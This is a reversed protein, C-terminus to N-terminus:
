LGSSLAELHKIFHEKLIEKYTEPYKELNSRVIGGLEPDRLVSGFTCHLIQRGLKTFGKGPEVERWLELYERELELDSAKDVTPADALTASVHYTAKDNDYHDRSFAIIRRFATPDHRAVVRLAELYSTGATKVHFCGKTARALAGYISLKDSGSHLSIKYPGLTSAIEAHAELSAELETINGKYDVGKEFEGIFRPALSVLKVGARLCQQAFIYHEAYTTPEETEDVSLEIEFDQGAENSVKQIYRGIEIVHNIALGYKVATRLCVEQTFEITLGNNLEVTQNLYEDFWGVSSSVRSYKEKLIELNYGDAKPDVYDSPDVTYFSFGAAVMLDVDACTKLHDADAGVVRDWGAQAVADMAEQMVADARRNTRAMERISQQAFIPHFTDKYGAMAAIHGPTALGIRDGFGFSPHLGLTKCKEKM